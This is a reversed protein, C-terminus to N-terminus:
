YENVGLTEQQLCQGTQKDEAVVKFTGNATACCCPGHLIEAEAWYMNGRRKTVHANVTVSKQLPTANFYRVDLRGTVPSGGFLDRLLRVMAADLITAVVGGQAMGDYGQFSNGLVVTGTNTIGTTVFQLRLGNKNEAGCAFCQRHFGSSKLETSEAVM